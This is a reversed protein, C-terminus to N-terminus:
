GPLVAALQVLVFAARVSTTGSRLGGLCGVVIGLWWYAAPEPLRSGCARTSGHRQALDEIAPLSPIEHGASGYLEYNQPILRHQPNNRDDDGGDTRSRRRRFRPLEGLQKSL